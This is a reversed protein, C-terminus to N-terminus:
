AKPVQSNIMDPNFTIRGSCSPIVALSVRSITSGTMVDAAVGPAEQESFKSQEDLVAGATMFKVELGQGPLILQDTWWTNGDRRLSEGPGQPRVTVEVKVGPVSEAVVVTLGKIFEPTYLNYSGPMPVLEQRNIQVRIPRGGLGALPVRFSVKRNGAPSQQQARPSDVSSATFRPLGEILGRYQYDLEHEVMVTTTRQVLSHIEYSYEVSLARFYELPPVTPSIALRVHVNKRICVKTEILDKLEFWVEPTIRESMILDFMERMAGFRQHAFRYIELIVAIVSAVILAMGLDRILDSFSPFWNKRWGTHSLFLLIMGASFCLMVSLATTLNAARRSSYVSGTKLPILWRFARNLQSRRRSWWSADAM